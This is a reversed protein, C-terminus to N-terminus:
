EALFFLGHSASCFCDDQLVCTFLECCLLDRLPLHRAICYEILTINVQQQLFRLLFSNLLFSLLLTTIFPFYSPFVRHCTTHPHCTAHLLSVVVFCLLARHYSKKFSLLGCLTWFFFFLRFTFPGQGFVVVVFVKVCFSLFVSLSLAAARVM